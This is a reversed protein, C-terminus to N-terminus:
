RGGGGDPLVLDLTPGDAHVTFSGRDLRDPQNGVGSRPLQYVLRDEQPYYLVYCTEPPEDYHEVAIKPFTVRVDRSRHTIAREGIEVLPRRVRLLERVQPSVMRGPGRKHAANM